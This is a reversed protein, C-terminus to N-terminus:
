PTSGTASSRAAFRRDEYAILMALFRQDVDASAVPLRWYGDKTIFPRLLKGDRDTVLSSYTIKNAAPLPGLRRLTETVGFGVTNTALTLGLLGAYLRLPWRSRPKAKM